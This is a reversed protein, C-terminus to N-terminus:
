LGDRTLKICVQIEKHGYTFLLWTERRQTRKHRQLHSHTAFAKGCQNCEYPKQGM